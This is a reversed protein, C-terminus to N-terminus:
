SRLIWEYEAKANSLSHVDSTTTTKSNSVRFAVIPPVLPAHFKWERKGDSATVARQNIRNRHSNAYNGQAFFFIGILQVM